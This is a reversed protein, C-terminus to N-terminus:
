KTVLEPNEYINGIIRANEITKSSLGDFHEYIAYFGNIDADAGDIYIKHEGFRVVTVKQYGYGVLIDGQYVDVGNVDSFGAFLMLEVDDTNVSVCDGYSNGVMNVSVSGDAYSAMEVFYYMKKHTKHWARVRPFTSVKNKALEYPEDSITGMPEQDSM